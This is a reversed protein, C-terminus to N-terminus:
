FGPQPIGSPNEPAEDEWSKKSSHMFCLVDKNTSHILKSLVICAFSFM